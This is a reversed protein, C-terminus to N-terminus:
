YRVFHVGYHVLWPNTYYLTTWDVCALYASMADFDTKSWLYKPAINDITPSLCTKYVCVTIDFEVVIHDSHGVPPHPAVKAILM